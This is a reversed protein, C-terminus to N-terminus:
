LSEKESFALVELDVTAIGCEVEFCLDCNIANTNTQVHIASTVFGTSGPPFLHTTM